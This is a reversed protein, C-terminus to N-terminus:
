RRIAPRATTSVTLRECVTAARCHLARGRAADPLSDAVRAVRARLDRSSIDVGPIDLLRVRRAAGPLRENSSTSTPSPRARVIRSSSRRWRSSRSRRTGARCSPCSTRGSWFSCSANPRRLARLLDATIRRAPGISHGTAVARLAPQGRDGARGDRLPGRRRADARRTEASEPARAPVARARARAAVAAEQAALLHGYHPPDFTGGLLGLRTVRGLHRRPDRPQDRHRAPGLLAAAVEIPRFCQQGVLVKRVFYRRVTTLSRCSLPRASARRSSRAAPTANSAFTSAASREPRHRRQRRWRVAERPLEARELRGVRDGVRRHSRTALRSARGSSRRSCASGSSSSRCTPRRGRRQGPRDHGGPTRRAKRACPVRRRREAEVSFGTRKRPRWAICACGARNARGRRNPLEALLDAVADLLAPIGKTPSRRRASWAATPCRRACASSVRARVRSSRAQQRRRDRAQRRGRGQVGRARRPRDPLRRAADARSADVVHVLIPAREVHRLFRHGLGAGTHAGAILGPVDALVFM